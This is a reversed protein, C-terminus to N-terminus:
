KGYEGDEDGKINGNLISWGTEELVKVLWKGEKNSKKYKSNRTKLTEQKEGM